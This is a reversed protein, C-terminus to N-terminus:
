KWRGIAVYTISASLSSGTYSQISVQTITNILDVRTHITMISANGIPIIARNLITSFAIPFTFTTQAYYSTGSTSGYLNAASTTHSVSVTNGMCILTGDAFKVYEGNANSGREIISGSALTNAIFSSTDNNYATTNDSILEGSAHPLTVVYDNASTDDYNLKTSGNNTNQFITGSAM